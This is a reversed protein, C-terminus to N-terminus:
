TYFDMSRTKMILSFCRWQELNHNSSKRLVDTVKGYFLGRIDSVAYQNVKNPDNIYKDKAAWRFSNDSGLMFFRDIRGNSTKNCKTLTDGLM